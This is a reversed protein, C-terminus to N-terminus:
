AIPNVSDYYDEIQQLQIQRTQIERTDKIIIKQEDPVHSLQVLPCNFQKALSNYIGSQIIYDYVQGNNFFLQNLKDTATSTDSEIIATISEDCLEIMKSLVSNYDISTNLNMYLGSDMTTKTQSKLLNNFVNFTDTDLLKLM